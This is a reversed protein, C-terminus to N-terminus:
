DRRLGRERCLDDIINWPIYAADGDKPMRVGGISVSGLRATAIHFRHWLGCLEDESEITIEIVAPEFKNVNSQVKAKM